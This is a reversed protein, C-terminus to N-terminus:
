IRLDVSGSGAFFRAFNNSFEPFELSSFHLKSTIVKLYTWAIQFMNLNHMSSVM